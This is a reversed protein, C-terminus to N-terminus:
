RLGSTFRSVLRLASPSSSAPSPWVMFQIEESPQQCQGGVLLGPDFGEQILLGGLDLRQSGTRLVVRGVGVAGFCALRLPRLYFLNAVFGVGLDRGQQIIGLLLGERIPQRLSLFGGSIVLRM